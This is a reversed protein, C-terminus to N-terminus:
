AISSPTDLAALRTITNGKLNMDHDAGVSRRMADSPSIPRMIALSGERALLGGGAELGPLVDRRALRVLGIPINSGVLGGATGVDLNSM